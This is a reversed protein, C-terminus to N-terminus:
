WSSGMRPANLIPVMIRQSSKLSQKRAASHLDENIARTLYKKSM